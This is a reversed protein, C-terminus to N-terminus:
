KDIEIGYQYLIWVSGEDILKKSGRGAQNSHHIAAEQLIKVLAHLTLVFNSDIATFDIKKKFSVKM